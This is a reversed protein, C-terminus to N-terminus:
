ETKEAKIDDFGSKETAYFHNVTNQICEQTQIMLKESAEKEKLNRDAYQMECVNLFLKYKYKGNRKQKRKFTVAIPLVPVDNKVATVFAGRKFPRVERYHPWLAGEPNYVIPKGKKLLYSVDDNFKRMGSVSSVPIPIGALSRLFFGVWPRRINQELTTFYVRRWHFVLTCVSVDDMYSVHNVAVVFGKGHTGKLNKKNRIKIHGLTHWYIAFVTIALRRFFSVWLRFFINRPRFSYNEDFKVKRNANKIEHMHEDTKDPRKIGDKDIM